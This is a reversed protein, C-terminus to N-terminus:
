LDRGKREAREREKEREKKREKGRRGEGEKRGEERREGGGGGQLESEIWLSTIACNSLCGGSLMRLLLKKLKIIEM